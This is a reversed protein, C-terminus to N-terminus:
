DSSDLHQHIYRLVPPYVPMDFEVGIWGDRAWRVTAKFPGLSEIYLSVTSRPPIGAVRPIWFQCGQESLNTLAVRYGRGGFRVSGSAQIKVRSVRRLDSMGQPLEAHAEADVNIPVHKM